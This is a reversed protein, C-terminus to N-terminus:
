VHRDPAVPLRVTFQTGIGPRSQVDVTGGHRQVVVKVFALGLGAGDPNNALHSDVRNFAQFLRTLQDAAMGRGQDKIHLVWQDGEMTLRCEIRSHDPSYKLANDLLNNWARQLLTSDGITWAFEPHETLEIRIDRHKAQPWFDDRSQEILQVLDVPARQLPMAEARALRVFGDVLNLTKHAHLTIRDLLEPQALAHDPDQQLEALALISTQPARMDHSLFRLTEDRTRQAKRLQSIAQHLQGVRTPLSEDALTASDTADDVALAQRDLQLAALERDLHRLSVEQSRWSWIPYALLLGILAATIPLWVNGYRMVVTCLAVISVMAIFVALLSRRPSLRRFALCVLLVPLCSLVAMLARNPTHIWSNGILSNLGNALIEVGAMGAGERTLPTPFTDGLGSGWSGILVLKDDFARPPALGDLVGAYPYLTINQLRGYPILLAEGPPPASQPSAPQGAVELMRLLLHERYEGSELHERLVLARVVGDNDPYINIYGIRAAAQALEPVPSVIDRRDNAMMDALVVRGHREIADALKIDDDPYAPNRDSFLMDFGVARAGQLRELLKAHVGRRWPWYGLRAISGDDIAIIVIDNNRAPHATLNLVQDYFTRDIQATGLQPSFYSLLMTLVLMVGTVLLWETRIRRELSRWFEAPAPQSTNAM